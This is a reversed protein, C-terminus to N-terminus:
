QPYWYPLKGEADTGLYSLLPVAEMRVLVTGPRPESFPCPESDAMERNCLRASVAPRHPDSQSQCPADWPNRM